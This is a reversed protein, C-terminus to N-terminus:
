SILLLNRRSPTGKRKALTFVNRSKKPREIPTETSDITVLQYVEAPQSLLAKRGPLAFDPHSVLTDEIWRINRYCASESVGYSSGVHFYTGYERNYELMMLLRDEMCLGNPKGGRSKKNTEAEKLIDIMKEFTSRKVGTLRRFKNAGFEKIINYKM